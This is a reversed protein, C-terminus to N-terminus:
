RISTTVYEGSNNKIYYTASLGVFAYNSISAPIATNNFYVKTLNGAGSFSAGDISTVSSPIEVGTILDMSEKYETMKIDIKTVDLTLSGWTISSPIVLNEFQGLTGIYGVVKVKNHNVVSLADEIEDIIAAEDEDEADLAARSGAQNAGGNIVYDDGYEYKLVWGTGDVYEFCYDDDFTDLPAFILYKTTANESNDVTAADSGSIEQIPSGSWYALAFSGAGIAIIAVISVLLIILKIPSSKM